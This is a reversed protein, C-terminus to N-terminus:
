LQWSKKCAQDLTDPSNVQFSRLTGMLMMPFVEWFLHYRCLLGSEAPKCSRIDFNLQVLLFLPEIKPSARFGKRMGSRFVLLAEM